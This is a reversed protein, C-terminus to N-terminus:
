NSTKTAAWSDVYLSNNSDILMGEGDAFSGSFSTINNDVINYNGDLEFNFTQQTSNSIYKVNYNLNVEKNTSLFLFYPDSDISFDWKNLNDSYDPYDDPYNYFTVLMKNENNPDPELEFEFTINFLSDKGELAKTTRYYFELKYKGEFAQQLTTGTDEGGPLDDDFTPITTCSAFVLLTIVLLGFFITKKM